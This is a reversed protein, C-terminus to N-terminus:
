ATKLILVDTTAHHSIRNPVNGLMFRKTGSMGVSGVAVLDIGEEEAISLLAEAADGEVSRAAASVGQRTSHEQARDLVDGAQTAEAIRWRFPEPTEREVRGAKWQDLADGPGRRM